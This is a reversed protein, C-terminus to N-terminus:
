RLRLHAAEGDCRRANLCDREDDPELDVILFHRLAQGRAAATEGRDVGILDLRAVHNPLNHEPLARDQVIHIWKSSSPSRPSGDTRWATSGHGSNACEPRLGFAVNLPGASRQGRGDMLGYAAPVCM